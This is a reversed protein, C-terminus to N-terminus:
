IGRITYVIFNNVSPNLCNWLFEVDTIDALLDSAGGFLRIPIRIDQLNFLPPYVQGYIQKIKDQLDMIM